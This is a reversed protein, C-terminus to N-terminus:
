CEFTEILSLVWWHTPELYVQAWETGDIGALM